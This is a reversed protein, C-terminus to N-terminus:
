LKKEQNSCTTAKNDAPGNGAYWGEIIIIMSCIDKYYVVSISIIINYIKKHVTSFTSTVQVPSSVM